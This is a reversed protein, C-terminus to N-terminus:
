HTFNWFKVGSVHLGLVQFAAASLSSYEQGDVTCHKGDALIAVEYTRGKYVRRNVAGPALKVRAAAQPGRSKARETPPTVAPGTAVPEQVASESAEGAGLPKDAKKAKRYAAALKREMVDTHALDADLYDVFISYLMQGHKEVFSAALEEWSLGVHADAFDAFIAGAPDVPHFDEFDSTDAWAKANDINIYIPTLGPLAHAADTCAETLTAAFTGYDIKDTMTTHQNSSQPGKRHPTATYQEQYIGKAM